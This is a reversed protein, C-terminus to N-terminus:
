ADAINSPYDGLSAQHVDVEPQERALREAADLAHRIEAEAEEHRPPRGHQAFTYIDGLSSHADALKSRYRSVGPEERALAGGSVGSAAKLEREAITGSYNTAACPM